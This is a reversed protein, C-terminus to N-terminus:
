AVQMDLTECCRGTGLYRVQFDLTEAEGARGLNAWCGHMKLTWQSSAAV